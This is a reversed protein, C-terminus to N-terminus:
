GFAPLTDQFFDAAAAVDDGLCIVERWLGAVECRFHRHVAQTVLDAGTFEAIIRFGGHEVKVAPGVVKIIEIDHVSTEKYCAPSHIWGQGDDSVSQTDPVVQPIAQIRALAPRLQM